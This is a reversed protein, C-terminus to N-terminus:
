KSFGRKGLFMVHSMDISLGLELLFSDSTLGEGREAVKFKM